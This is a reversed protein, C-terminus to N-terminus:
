DTVPVDERTRRGRARDGSRSCRRSVKQNAGVPAMTPIKTTHNRASSSSVAMRSVSRSAPAYSLMEWSWLMASSACVTTLVMLAAIIVKMPTTKLMESTASWIALPCSLGRTTRIKMRLRIVFAVNATKRAVNTSDSSTSVEYSLSGSGFSTLDTGTTCDTSVRKM